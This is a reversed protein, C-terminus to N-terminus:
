PNTLEEIATHYGLMGTDPGLGEIRLSSLSPHSGMIENVSLAEVEDTGFNQFSLREVSPMTKLVSLLSQIERLSRTRHIPQNARRLHLACVRYDGILAELFENFVSSEYEDIGIHVELQGEDSISTSEHGAPLSQTRQPLRFNRAYDSSAIVSIKPVSGQDDVMCAAPNVPLIATEIRDEINDDEDFKVVIQQDDRSFLSGFSKASTISDEEQWDFSDFNEIPSIDCELPVVCTDEGNELDQEFMFDLADCQGHSGDDNSFAVYEDGSLSEDDEDPDLFLAKDKNIDKDSESSSNAAMTTDAFCFLKRVVAKLNFIGLPSEPDQPFPKSGEFHVTRRFIIDKSLETPYDADSSTSLDRVPPTSGSGDEFVITEERDDGLQKISSNGLAKTTRDRSERMKLDDMQFTRIPITSPREAVMTDELNIYREPSAPATINLLQSLDIDESDDDDHDDKEKAPEKTERPPTSPPNATAAMEDYSLDEEEKTFVISDEQLSQPFDMISKPSGHGQKVDHCVPVPSKNGRKGASGVRAFANRIKRLPSRRQKAERRAARRQELLKTALFQSRNMKFVQLLTKYFRPSPDVLIYDAAAVFTFQM